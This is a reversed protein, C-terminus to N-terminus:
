RVQEARPHWEIDKPPLRYLHRLKGFWLAAGQAIYLHGQTGCYSSRCMAGLKVVGGKLRVQEAFPHWEIDRRADARSVIQDQLDQCQRAGSALLYFFAM